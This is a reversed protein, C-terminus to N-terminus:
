ALRLREAVAILREAAVLLEAECESLDGARMWGAAQVFAEAIDQLRGHQKVLVGAASAAFERESTLPKRSVLPM